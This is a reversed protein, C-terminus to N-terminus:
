RGLPLTLQHPRSFRLEVPPPPLHMANRHSMIADYAGRRVKQVLCADLLISDGQKGGMRKRSVEVLNRTAPSKWTELRYILYVGNALVVEAEACDTRRISGLTKSM